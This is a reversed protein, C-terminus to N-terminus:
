DLVMYDFGFTQGGPAPNATCVTFSSTNRDVFYNLGAAASGIPTIIVHPTGNFKQTFTVTAFCGAAPSGGTNITISGSTDSGSVSATGGSGLAGGRSLGPISGGATIHHTITLDGNLLLSSTSIQGASLLGSVTASGNVSLGQRATLPGQVTATGSVALSTSQLQGFSSAGSVSIGPLKIDGNAKITGAVELDSRVLVSGGFIANSAVNLVQKSTGINVSTNSLQKQTAESLDQSTITNNDKPNANRDRIFLVVTIAAAIIILLIFLLLYLNFKHWIRVFLPLREIKRPLVPEAAVNQPAEADLENSPRELSHAENDQDSPLKSPDM